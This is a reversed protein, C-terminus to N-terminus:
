LHYFLVYHSIPWVQANSSRCNRDPSTWCKLLLWGNHGDRKQGLNETGDFMSPLNRCRGMHCHSAEIRSDFILKANVLCQRYDQSRLLVQWRRDAASLTGSRKWRLKSCSQDAWLSNGQLCWPLYSQVSSFARWLSWWIPTMRERTVRQWAPLSM